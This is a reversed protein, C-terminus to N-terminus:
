ELSPKVDLGLSISAVNQLTLNIIRTLKHFVLLVDALL